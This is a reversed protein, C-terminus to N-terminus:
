TNVYLRMLKILKQYARAKMYQNYNLGYGTAIIHICLILFWWVFQIGINIIALIFSHNKWILRFQYCLFIFIGLLFLLVFATLPRIDSTNIKSYFYCILIIVILFVTITIIILIIALVIYWFSYEKPNFILETDQETNKQISCKKTNFTLDINEQMSKTSNSSKSHQKIYCPISISNILM